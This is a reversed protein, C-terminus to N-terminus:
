LVKAMGALVSEIAAQHIQKGGEWHPEDPMAKMMAQADQKLMELDISPNLAIAKGILMLASCVGLEFPTVVDDSKM